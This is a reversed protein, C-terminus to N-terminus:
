GEHSTINVQHTTNSDTLMFRWFVVTRPMTKQGRLSDVVEDVVVNLNVLESTTGDVVSNMVAPVHWLRRREEYNLEIVENRCDELKFGHSEFAVIIDEQRIMPQTEQLYLKYKKKKLKKVIEARFPDDWCQFGMPRDTVVVTNHATVLLQGSLKLRSRCWIAVDDLSGFSRVLESLSQHFVIFSFKDQDLDIISENYSPLQCLAFRVHSDNQFKDRLIRIMQPSGDLLVISVDPHLKLIAHVSDGSGSGIDLVSDGRQPQIMEAVITSSHSLVNSQRAYNSWQNASVDWVSRDFTGLCVSSQSLVRYIGDYHDFRSDRLSLGPSASLRITLGQHTDGHLYVTSHVAYIVALECPNAGFMSGTHTAFGNQQFFSVSRLHPLRVAYTSDTLLCAIEQRANILNRHYDNSEYAMGLIPSAFYIEISEWPLTNSANQLRDRIYSALQRHSIGLFVIHKFKDMDELMDATADSRRTYWRVTSEDNTKSLIKELSRHLTKESARDKLNGLALLLLTVLIASYIWYDDVLHLVKLILLFGCVVFTAYLEINHIVDRFTNHMKEGM